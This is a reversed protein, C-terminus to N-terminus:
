DVEDTGLEIKHVTNNVWAMNTLIEMPLSSNGLWQDMAEVISVTELLMKCTDMGHGTINGILWLAMSIAQFDNGTVVKQM